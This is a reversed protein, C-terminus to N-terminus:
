GGSTSLSAICFGGAVGAYAHKEAADEPVARPFFKDKGPEAKTPVGKAVIEHAAGLYKELLLPSVTLVEGLNDFGHGSDDQPFNEKVDYEVGLLDRITNRYEVRNLRRLTVHGPDPNEADGHFVDTKIWHEMQQMEEATLSPMDAPPM